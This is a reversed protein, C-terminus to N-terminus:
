RMGLIQMVVVMSLLGAIILVSFAVAGPRDMELYFKYGNHISWGAHGYFVALLTISLFAGLPEDDLRVFPSIIALSGIAGWVLLMMAPLAGLVSYAWVRIVHANRVKYHRMSQRFIMLAGLAGTAWALQAAIVAWTVRSALAEILLDLWLTWVAKTSYLQRSRWAMGSLFASLTTPAIITTVAAIAWAVGAMVILPRTPPLDHISTGEWLRDPRLAARWSQLFSRVARDRWRHEFHDGRRTRYAELVQDWSFARGCEPCRAEQLGYLRYGCGLCTLQELPVAEAWNFRLGCKPCRPEHLGRLDHGCRGCLVDFHVLSWDPYASTTM